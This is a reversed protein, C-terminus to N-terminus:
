DLRAYAGLDFPEFPVGVSAKQVWAPDMLLARGVAVLDFEDRGFRRMVEELNNISQTPEAFSEMLGKDFGIGGVTMVLKGSLKKVWGALGMDTGEGTYSM